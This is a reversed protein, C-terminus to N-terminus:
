MEADVRVAAICFEAKDGVRPWANSVSMLFREHLVMRLSYITKGHHAYECGQCSTRKWSVYAAMSNCNTIISVDVQLLLGLINFVYEKREEASKELFRFDKM